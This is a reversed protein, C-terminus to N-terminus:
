PCINQYAPGSPIYRTWQTLTLSHGVRTCLYSPTNVLYAVDWLRVKGDESGTALSEGNPSFAVSRVYPKGSVMLPDGIEEQTTVDWLRATGDFSGSALTQGDPSFAVTDVPGAGGTLLNGVQRRTAVDLLKVTDDFDGAAM